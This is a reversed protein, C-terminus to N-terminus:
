RGVPVVVVPSATGQWPHMETPGYSSVRGNTLRVQYTARDWTYNSSRRMAYTLTEVNGDRAVGDPDGLARVVAERSQGVQVEGMRDAHTCAVALFLMSAIAVSRM